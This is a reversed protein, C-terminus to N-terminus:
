DHLRDKQEEFLRQWVAQKDRLYVSKIKQVAFERQSESYGSYADYFAQKDVIFRTVFDYPAYSALLRNVLLQDRHGPKARHVLLKLAGDVGELDIPEDNLVQKEFHTLFAFIEDGSLKHLNALIWNKMALDGASGVDGDAEYQAMKSRVLLETRQHVLGCDRLWAQNFAELRGSADLFDFVEDGAEIQIFRIADQNGESVEAPIEAGIVVAASNDRFVYLGGFHRTWFSGLKFLTQRPMLNNTRPDGCQRSLDLIERLLADDKWDDPAGGFRVILAMLRDAKQLLGHSTKLKFEVQGISVIDSLTDVQHTAEEIEGLVVDKLTLVKLCEANAQYFAAMLEATSSFNSAIVPLREQEPSLIIFRRNIGHPDLYNEDGLDAAIEPSYGAADIVFDTRGTEPLGFERLAYNYREILHPERVRMMAGYILANDILREMLRGAPREGLREM